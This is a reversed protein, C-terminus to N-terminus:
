GAKRKRASAALGFLAAGVLALSGPEPVPSTTVAGNYSQNAVSLLGAVDGTVVIAYTGLTLPTFPMNVANNPSALATAIPAGNLSLSSCGGTGVGFVNSTLASCGSATASYLSIRFNSIETSPTFTLSSSASGIPAFNFVYTHTFSFSTSSNVTVGSSVNSLDGTLANLPGIYLNNNTAAGYQCFGCVITASAGTSFAAAIAAVAALKLISKMIKSAKEQPKTSAAYRM